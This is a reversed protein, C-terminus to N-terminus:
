DKDQWGKIGPVNRHKPTRGELDPRKKGEPARDEQKGWKVDPEGAGRAVLDGVKAVLDEESEIPFYDEPFVKRVQGPKYRKGKFNFEADEGGVAAALSKFDRIPYQVRGSVQKAMELVDDPGFAQAEMTIAGTFSSQM